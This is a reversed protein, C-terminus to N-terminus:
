CTYVEKEQYLFTRGDASELYCVSELPLQFQRSEQYGTLCTGYQRIQGVMKQLRQDLRTCRILVETERVSLDEQITLKM